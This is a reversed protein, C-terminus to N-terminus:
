QDCHHWDVYFINKYRGNSTVIEICRGSNGETWFSAVSTNSVRQNHRYTYGRRRVEGEAQGARAGVLDQLPRSSSNSTNQSRPRDGRDCDATTGTNVLSVYRGQQTRVSICRGTKTQTWYSYTSDNSKEAWRFRYGRKQLIAEGDRGRVNVLDQLGRVPDGANQAHANLATTIILSSVIVPILRHLKM